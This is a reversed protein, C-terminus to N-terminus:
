GRELFQEGRNTASYKVNSGSRTRSVLGLDAMRSIVGARQTTLFADTFPREERVPVYKKLAADLAEPTNSGSTISSLTVRIAFSETPVATAIHSLMFETEEKSFKSGLEFDSKDLIPNLLQAFRCGPETLFIRPSKHRDHNVLKLDILMGTMVGTRAMAGVFQSAYRLRSKDNNSPDSSPFAIGLAEDRHKENRSDLDRLLDGLIVAASAIEIGARELPVGGSPSDERILNMLARLNAKVPLFKNHQGFIWRDVPVEMGNAFADNPLAAFSTPQKEDAVLRFIAPLEGADPARGNVSVNRFTSIAARSATPVQSEFLKTQSVDPPVLTEAGSNHLLFQNGVALSILESYDRYDGARILRDMQEKVNREVNICIIMETSWSFVSLLQSITNMYTALYCSFLLHHEKIGVPILKHENISM